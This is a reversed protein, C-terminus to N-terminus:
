LIKVKRNLTDAALIVLGAAATSWCWTSATACPYIILTIAFSVMFIISNTIWWVNPLASFFLLMSVFYLIIRITNMDDKVKWWGYNLHACSATPKMNWDINKGSALFLIIYVLLAFVGMWFTVPLTRGTYVFAALALLGMAMSQTTNLGFALYKTSSSIKQELRLERWALGDPLQMLLAYQFALLSIIPYVLNTDNYITKERWLYVLIGINALSGVGLTTWSTKEDFCM